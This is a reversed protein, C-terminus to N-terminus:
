LAAGDFTGGTAVTGWYGGGWKDAVTENLGLIKDRVIAYLKYRVVKFTYV